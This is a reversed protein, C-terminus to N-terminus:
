KAIEPYAARAAELDAERAMGVPEGKSNQGILYIVDGNEVIQITARLEGLQEELGAEGEKNNQEYISVTRNEEDVIYYWAYGDTANLDKASGVIGDAHFGYVTERDANKEINYWLGLIEGSCGTAKGWGNEPQLIPEATVKTSGCAALALVTILTLALAMWKKM